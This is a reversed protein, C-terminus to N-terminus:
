CVDDAKKVKFKIEMTNGIPDAPYDSFYMDWNDFPDQRRIDFCYNDYM